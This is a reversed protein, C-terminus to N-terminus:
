NMEAPKKVQEAWVTLSQFQAPGYATVLACDVADRGRAIAVRGIRPINHRADFTRWSGGNEDELWVEFWAHFDMPNPNPNPTVAIDPLYGFCYRAPISLARCFTIGLHAFDRCIGRRKECVDQATTAATSSGIEYEIHTHIWDCVTQVRAWGMPAAGFMRWAEDSMVDSPCYRSALTWHLLEDPLHEVQVQWAHMQTADPLSSVEILADYGFRAEGMPLTMRRARNDYLDRFEYSDAASQWDEQLIRHRMDLHGASKDDQVQALAMAPVPCGCHYIWECGVRLTLTQPPEHHGNSSAETSFQTVTNM